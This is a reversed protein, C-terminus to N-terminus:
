GYIKLEGAYITKIETQGLIMKDINEQAFQITFTKGGLDYTIDWLLYKVQFTFPTNLSNWKLMFYAKDNRFELKPISIKGTDYTTKTFSTSINFGKADYKNDNIYLALEASPNALTCHKLSEKTLKINTIVADGPIGLSTLEPSDIRIVGLNVTEFDPKDEPMVGNEDPVPTYNFEAYDNLDDNYLNGIYGDTDPVDNVSVDVSPKAATFDLTLNGAKVITDVIPYWEPRFNDNLAFLDLAAGYVRPKNNTGFSQSQEIKVTLRPIDNYKLNLEDSEITIYIPTLYNEKGVDYMYLKQSQCLQTGDLYVKFRFSDYMYGTTNSGSLGIRFRVKRIRTNLPLAPYAFNTLTANFSSSSHANGQNEYRAFTDLTSPEDCMNAFDYIIGYAKPDDKIWNTPYGTVWDYMPDGYVVYLDVAKYRELCNIQSSTGTIVLRIDQLLEIKPKPISIEYVRGDATAHDGSYTAILADSSYVEITRDRLRNDEWDYMFRIKAEYIPTYKPIGSLDFGCFYGDHRTGTSTNDYYIAAGNELNESTTLRFALGIHNRDNEEADTFIRTPLQKFPTVYNTAPTEYFYKPVTPTYNVVVDMGYVYCRVGYGSKREWEYVLKLDTLWDSQFNALQFVERVAPQSSDTIEHLAFEYLRTNGSYIALKRNLMCYNPSADENFSVVISNVEFHKPLSSFDFGSYAIDFLMNSNDADYATFTTNQSDDLDNGMASGPDFRYSFVPAARNFGPQCSTPVAKITQMEQEM